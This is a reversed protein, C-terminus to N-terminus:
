NAFSVWDLGKLALIVFPVLILRLASVVKHIQYAVLCVVAVAQFPCKANQIRRKQAHLEQFCKKMDPLVGRLCSSPGYVFAITTILLGASCALWTQLQLFM